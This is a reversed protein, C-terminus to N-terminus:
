TVLRRLNGLGSRLILLVMDRVPSNWFYSRVQFGDKGHPPRACWGISNAQYFQKRMEAVEPKVAQMGDECVYVSATGGLSEYHQIAAMVSNITPIIVGKLGEKYVPMQITIHPWQMDPHKRIDPARSSYYHSNGQKVDTIPGFIQFLTGIVVIVFFLTFRSQWFCNTILM